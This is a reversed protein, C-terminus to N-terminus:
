QVQSEMFKAAVLVGDIVVRDQSFHIRKERGNWFSPHNNGHSNRHIDSNQALLKKDAKLKLIEVLHEVCWVIIKVLILM